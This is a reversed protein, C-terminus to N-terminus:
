SCWRVWAGRPYATRSAGRGTKRKRHPASKHRLADGLANGHQLTRFSLGVTTGFSKLWRAVSGRGTKCKRHPNM